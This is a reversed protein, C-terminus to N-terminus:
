REPRWRSFRRELQEAAASLMTQLLNKPVGSQAKLDVHARNIINQIHARIEGLSRDLKRDSPLRVYHWYPVPSFIRSTLKPFIVGLHRQVADEEHELTNVDQGFSLSSTVDVTYRTLDEVVDTVGGTKAVHEWRSRLRGTITRLTPFFEPLQNPGLAQLVLNRQRFWAAGEVSFLGNLDLEDAVTQITSLRRFAEPREHLVIDALKPDSTVLVLKSFMRFTFSRGLEAEWSEIRRHLEEFNLLQHFNGVLPLGRPSPLDELRRVSDTKPSAIALIGEETAREVINSQQLAILDSSAETSGTLAAPDTPTRNSSTGSYACPQARDAGLHKGLSVNAQRNAGHNALPRPFM